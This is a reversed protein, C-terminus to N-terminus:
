NNPLSKFTLPQVNPLLDFEGADSADVHTDISAEEDLDVTELEMRGLPIEGAIASPIRCEHECPVPPQSECCDIYEPV